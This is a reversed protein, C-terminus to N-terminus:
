LCQELLAPIHGPYKTLVKCSAQFPNLTISPCGVPNGAGGQVAFSLIFVVVQTGGDFAASLVYNYKIFWNPRYKRLYWQSTVGVYFWPMTLANIGVYLFGIFNSVIATNWYDWGM